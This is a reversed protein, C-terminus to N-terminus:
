VTQGNDCYLHTSNHQLKEDIDQNESRIGVSCISDIQLQSDLSRKM